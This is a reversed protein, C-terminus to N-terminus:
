PEVNQGAGRSAVKEPERPGVRRGSYSIGYLATWREIQNGVRGEQNLEKQRSQLDRRVHLPQQEGLVHSAAGASAALRVSECVSRRFLPQSSLGRRDFPHRVLKDSESGGRRRVGDRLRGPKYQVPRRGRQGAWLACARFFVARGAHFTFEPGGLEYDDGPGLFEGGATIDARWRLWRNQRVYVGFDLGQEHMRGYTAVPTTSSGTYMLSPNPNLTDAITYGLFIGVPRDELGQARAYTAM